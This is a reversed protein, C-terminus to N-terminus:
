KGPPSCLHVQKIPFVTCHGSSEGRDLPVSPEGTGRAIVNFRPGFERFQDVLDKVKEAVKAESESAYSDRLDSALGFTRHKQLVVITTPDDSRLKRLEDAVNAPLTFQRDRTLDHRCYHTYSYANVFAFLAIAALISVTAAAEAATRRSAALFLGGLLEVVLMLLVAGVGFTLVMAAKMAFDGNAGHLAHRFNDHSWDDPNPFASAILVAGVAAALLGLLGLARILFRFRLGITKRQRTDAM